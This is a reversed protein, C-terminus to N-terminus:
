AVGVSISLADEQCVAMHWWRSPIYLFDGPVLSATQLPSSEGRIASFNRPPFPTDREVTNDRFYYHKIGETQAIFVDELDYHWGFGHTGGPTAFLQVHAPRALLHSVEDALAALGDDCREAHRLCLGVGLRFYARLEDRDRPAPWPLREGRACVIDDSRGSALVRDLVDWDLLRRADIASGPRAWASRKLYDRAFTGLELPAIWAHLVALGM